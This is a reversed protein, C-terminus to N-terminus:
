PYKEFWFLNVYGVEFVHRCKLAALQLAYLDVKLFFLLTVKAVQTEALVKIKFVKNTMTSFNLGPKANFSLLSDYEAAIENRSEKIIRYDTIASRLKINNVEAQSYITILDNAHANNLIIISISVSIFLCTKSAHIRSGSM